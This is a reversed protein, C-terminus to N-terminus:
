IVAWKFSSIANRQKTAQSKHGTWRHGYKIHNSLQWKTSTSARPELTETDCRCQIRTTNRKREYNLLISHNRYTQDITEHSEKGNPKFTQPKSQKLNALLCCFCWWWLEAEREPETDQRKLRELTSHTHTHVEPACYFRLFAEGICVLAALLCLSRHQISETCLANLINIGLNNTKESVFHNNRSACSRNHGPVKTM